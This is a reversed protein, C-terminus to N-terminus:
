EAVKQRNGIVKCGRLGLKYTVEESLMKKSMRYLTVEKGTEARKVM